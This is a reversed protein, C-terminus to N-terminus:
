STAQHVGVFRRRSKGLGPPGRQLQLLFKAERRRGPRDHGIRLRKILEFPFPKRIIEHTAADRRSAGPGTLLMAATLSRVPACVVPLCTRKKTLKCFHEADIRGEIANGAKDVVHIVQLKRVVQAIPRQRLRM